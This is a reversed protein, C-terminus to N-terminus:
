FPIDLFLWWGVTHRFSTKQFFVHENQIKLVSSFTWYNQFRVWLNESSLIQHTKSDDVQLKWMSIRVMELRSKITINLYSIISNNNICFSLLTNTEESVRRHKVGICIHVKALNPSFSKKSTRSNSIVWHFNQQINTQQRRVCLFVKNTVVGFITNNTLAWSKLM